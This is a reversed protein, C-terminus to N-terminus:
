IGQLQQLLLTLALLLEQLRQRSGGRRCHCTHGAKGPVKNAAEM